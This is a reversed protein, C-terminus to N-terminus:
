YIEPSAVIPHFTPLPSGELYKLISFFAERIQQEKIALQDTYGITLWKAGGYLQHGPELEKELPSKKVVSLIQAEIHSKKSKLVRVNVM